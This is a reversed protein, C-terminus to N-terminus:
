GMGQVMAEAQTRDQQELYSLWAEKEVGFLGDHKQIEERSELMSEAGNTDLKYIQLETDMLELASGKTLPLMGDWKYGYEHMEELSVKDPMMFEEQRAAKIRSLTQTERDYQYVEDSLIETPHLQTRNVERVMEKLLEPNMDNNKKLLITEHISSPIVVLDSKLRDAISKMLDEDFMYAAGYNKEENSLVYMEVLSGQEPIGDYGLEQLIDNISAFVPRHCHHMNSWAAERLTKEDIGWSALHDNNILVSGQEGNSLKISARYLLALDEKIEHPVNELLDRNMEANQVVVFIGDKVKDYQFGDVPFEGAQEMSKVYMDAIRQLINELAAGKEYEQFYPELYIAPVINKEGKIFLADLFVNNNKRQETIGVEYDEYESPLFRKVNDAIYKKFSEYQM